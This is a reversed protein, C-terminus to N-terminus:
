GAVPRTGSCDVWAVPRTGSRPEAVAVVAVRLNGVAGGEGAMCSPRGGDHWGNDDHWVTPMAGGYSWGGVNVTFQNLGFDARGTEIQYPSRHSGVLYAAAIVVVQALVL